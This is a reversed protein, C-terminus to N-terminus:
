VHGRLHQGGFPDDFGPTEFPTMGWQAWVRQRKSVGLSAGFVAALLGLFLAGFVGWFAKGTSEAAKAAGTQLQSGMNTRAQDIQSEVRTALEDADALSLSTHQAISNILTRRDLEGTRVATKLAESTATELQQATVTPKGEARLRENLPAVITQADLQAGSAASAGEQIVEGGVSALSAVARSVISVILMAGLVTTLGWMVLGHMAGSVRTMVGAGRGAVLGGVFLAILSTVVAWIGAFMGSGKLSSPDNPNLTTLGLAFGLVHLLAGVGLAAVAGGFIAGWSMRVPAGHLLDLRDVDREENMIPRSTTTAM